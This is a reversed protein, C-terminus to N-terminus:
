ASAASMAASREGGARPIERVVSMAIHEAVNANPITNVSVNLWRVSLGAVRAAVIAAGADAAADAGAVVTGAGADIIM